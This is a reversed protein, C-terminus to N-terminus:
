KNKDEIKKDDKKKTRYEERGRNSKELNWTENNIYKINGITKIKSHFQNKM